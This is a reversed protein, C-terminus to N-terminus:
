WHASALKHLPSSLSKASFACQRNEKARRGLWIKGIMSPIGGHLIGVLAEADQLVCLSYLVGGRFDPHPQISKNRFDIVRSVLLSVKDRDQTPIGINAGDPCGDDLLILERYFSGPDILEGGAQTFVRLAKTASDRDCASFGDAM